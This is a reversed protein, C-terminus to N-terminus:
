EGEMKLDKNEITIKVTCGGSSNSGIWLGYSEGYYLQIRKNINKISFSHDGATWIKQLTEETLGIGNDEITFIITNDKGTVTITIMGKYPAEKIGHYICNEVIPQLLLKLCQLDQLEKPCDIHYNFKNYYRIEMIKLYSEIIQLERGVTILQSGENLTERYFMSLNMVINILKEKEELEALSCINDLANYLFHPNVQQQMLDLSIKQKMTQEQLLKDKLQSQAELMKNFEHTLFTIENSATVTKMPEWNGHIVNQIHYILHRIPSTISKAMLHSIATSLIICVLTILSAILLLSIMPKYFYTKDISSVFFWRLKPYYKYFLIDHKGHNKGADTNTLRQFGIYREYHKADGTSNQVFGQEDVILHTTYPNSIQKKYINTVTTQYIAIEIYGLFLGKDYNYFERIYSLVPFTEKIGYPKVKLRPVWSSGDTIINDINPSTSSTDTTVILNKDADYVSVSQIYSTGQIISGIKNKLILSEIGNLSTKQQVHKTVKEQVMTDVIISKSFNEVTSLTLTLQKSIYELEQLSSTTAVRVHYRYVISCTSIFLVAIVMISLGLISLFFKRSISNKKLSQIMFLGGKQPSECM